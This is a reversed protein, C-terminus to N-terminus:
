EKKNESRKEYEDLTFYIIATTIHNIWLNLVTAQLFAAFASEKGSWLALFGFFNEDFRFLGGYLLLLVALVLSVISWIGLIRKMKM